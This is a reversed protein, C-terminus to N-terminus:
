GLWVGFYCKQFIVVSNVYLKMESEIKIVLVNLLMSIWCIREGSMIMYLLNFFDM